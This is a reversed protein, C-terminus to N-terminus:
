VYSLSCRIQSHECIPCFHNSRAPCAPHNKNNRPKFKHYYKCELLYAQTPSTAKRFQFSGFSKAILSLHEDKSVPARTGLSSDSRRVYRPRGLSNYFIYIGPIGEHERMFEDLEKIPHKWSRREKYEPMVVGLDSECMRRYAHTLYKQKECLPSLGM